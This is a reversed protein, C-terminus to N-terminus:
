DNSQHRVIDGEVMYIVDAAISGAMDGIRELHKAVAYLKLLPETQVPHERIAVRIEQHIVRRMSDLEDDDQRVQYARSANAEILCELSQKLMNQARAAMPGFDIRASVPDTRALYLARKAINGALDGTRELDNNIKLVAVVFRLDSAAPQYLALIKLCDEEVEIEMRDIEADQEIVKKAATEDRHAIAVIADAIASEVLSGVVLIRQKLQDLQRALHKAM